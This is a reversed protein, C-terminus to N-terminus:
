QRINQVPIPVICFTEVQQWHNVLTIASASEQGPTLARVIPNADVCVQSSM